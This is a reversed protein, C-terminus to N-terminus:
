NSIHCLSPPAVYDASWATLPKPAKDLPVEATGLVHVPVEGAVLGCKLWGGEPVWALDRCVSSSSGGFTKWLRSEVQQGHLEWVSHWSTGQVTVVSSFGEFDVQLVLAIWM